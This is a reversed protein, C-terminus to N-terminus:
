RINLKSKRLTELKAELADREAFRAKYDIIMRNVVAERYAREKDAEELLWNPDSLRIKKVMKAIQCIEIGTFDMGLLTDMSLEGIYVDWALLPINPKKTIGKIKVAKM